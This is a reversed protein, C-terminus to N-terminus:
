ANECSVLRIDYVPHDIPQLYPSSSFTWGNFVFIKENNSDSTDKVQIYAAENQNEALDVKGCRIVKIELLGFRKIEGLKMSLTSTKATIKDLGILNVKTNEIKKQSEKKEKLPSKNTLNNLKDPSTDEAEYSPELNELNILPVTSIKENATLSLFIFTFIITFLIKIKGLRM